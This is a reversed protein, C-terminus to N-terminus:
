KGTGNDIHAQLARRVIENVPVCKRIAEVAIRDYIVAPVRLHMDAADPGIPPRGRKVAGTETEAM